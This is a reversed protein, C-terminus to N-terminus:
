KLNKWEKEAQKFEEISYEDPHKLIYFIEYHEWAGELKSLQYLNLGKHHEYALHFICEVIPNHQNGVMDTPLAPITRGVAKVAALYNEKSRISGESTGNVLFVANPVDIIFYSVATFIQMVFESKKVKEMVVEKLLLVTKTLNGHYCYVTFNLETM